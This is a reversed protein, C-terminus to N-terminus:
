LVFLGFQGSPELPLARSRRSEAISPPVGSGGISPTIWLSAVLVRVMLAVAKDLTLENVIEQELEVIVPLKQTRISQPEESQKMSEEKTRLCLSETTGMAGIDRVRNSPVILEYTVSHIVKDMWNGDSIM